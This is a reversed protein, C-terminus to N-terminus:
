HWDVGEPLQSGVKIGQDGLSKVKRPDTCTGHVTWGKRVYTLAIATAVYGIGFIFLSQKGGPEATEAAATSSLASFTVPLGARGTIRSCRTNAVGASRERARTVETWSTSTSSAGRPQLRASKSCFITGSPPPGSQAHRLPSATWATLLSRGVSASLLPMCLLLVSATARM